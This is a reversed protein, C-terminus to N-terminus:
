VAVFARSSLSFVLSKQNQRSVTDSSRGRLPDAAAHDQRHPLRQTCDSSNPAAPPHITQTQRQGMRHRRRPVSRPQEYYDRVRRRM